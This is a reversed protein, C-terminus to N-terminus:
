GVVWESQIDNPLFEDWNIGLAAIKQLILKSKLLYPSVMSLPDFLQSAAERRTAAQCFNKDCRIRLQDCEPDWIPGLAKSDPMPGSSLDIEGICPALDSIPVNSLISEVYRNTIWKRLKFGRSRFLAISQVTVTELDNLSDWACLLDDMCRNDEIINSAFQGCNTPNAAVVQKIALLAVYPSSNIGWVHRTFRFIQNEMRDIDHNKFWVLRFLDQQAKPLTVQFFSKSLDAVFAYKGLRFRTLVEVLNNLLNTGPLVAQNRSTGKYSAAGDCVVRPKEQRTVFFPLYWTPGKPLPNDVPVMWGESVAEWFTDVLTQKRDPQRLVSRRLLNTRELPYEHHNPLRDVIDDKLPVPIAYRNDVVKIFPEVLERAQENTKSPMLMEDNLEYERLINKLSAIEQKLENFVHNNSSALSVIHVVSYCNLM